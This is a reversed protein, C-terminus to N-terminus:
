ATGRYFRRRPGTGTTPWPRGGRRPSWQVTTACWLTRTKPHFPVLGPDTPAQGACIEGWASGWAGCAGIDTSMPSWNQRPPLFCCHLNLYDRGDFPAGQWGRLAEFGIANSHQSCNLCRCWYGPHVRWCGPWRAWWSMSWQPVRRQLNEKQKTM